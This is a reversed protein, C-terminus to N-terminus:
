SSTNGESQFFFQSKQKFTQLKIHLMVGFYEFIHRERYVVHVHEQWSFHLVMKGKCQMLKSRTFKLSVLVLEMYKKLSVYSIHAFFVTLWSPPASFAEFSQFLYVTSYM